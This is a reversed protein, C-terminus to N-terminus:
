LISQIDQDVDSNDKAEESAMLYTTVSPFQKLFFKDFEENSMRLAHIRVFEIAAMIDPHCIEHPKLGGLM